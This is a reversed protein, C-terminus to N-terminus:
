GRLIVKHPERHCRRNNRALPCNPKLTLARACAAATAAFRGRVNEAACIHNYAEAYDPPLKLAPLSAHFEGHPHNACAAALLLTDVRV